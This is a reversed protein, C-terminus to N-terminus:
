GNILDEFEQAALADGIVTSHTALLDDIDEAQSVVHTWVHTMGAGDVHHETVLRDAGQDIVRAISSTLAM